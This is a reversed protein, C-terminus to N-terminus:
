FDLCLKSSTLYLVQSSPLWTPSFVSAPRSQGMHSKLGCKTCGHLLRLRSSCPRRNGLGSPRLSWSGPQTAHSAVEQPLLAGKDLLSTHLGAGRM